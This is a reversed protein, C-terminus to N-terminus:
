LNDEEWPHPHKDYDIYDEDPILTLLVDKYVKVYPSEKVEKIKEIDVMNVAYLEHPKPQCLAPSAARYGQLPVPKPYQVSGWLEQAREIPGAPIEGTIIEHALSYIGGLHTINDVSIPSDSDRGGGESM